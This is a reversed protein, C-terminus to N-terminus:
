RYVVLTAMDSLWKAKRFHTWYCQLYLKLYVLLCFYSAQQLRIGTDLFSVLSFLEVWYGRPSLFTLSPTSPITNSISHYTIIEM